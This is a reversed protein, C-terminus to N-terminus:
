KPCLNKTVEEEEVLGKAAMETTAMVPMMRKVNFERAAHSQSLEHALVIPVVGDLIRSYFKIWATHNILDYDENGLVVRLTWFLM